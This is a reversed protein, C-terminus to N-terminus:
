LGAKRARGEADACMQKLGLAAERCAELDERLPAAMDDELAMDLRGLMATLYQRAREIPISPERIDRRIM